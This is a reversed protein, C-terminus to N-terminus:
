KIVVKQTTSGVANKVNVFYIGANIDATAITTNVAKLYMLGGIGQLSKSDVEKNGNSFTTNTINIKDAIILLSNTNKESENDSFTSLDISVESFLSYLYIGSSSQM